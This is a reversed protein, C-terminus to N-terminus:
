SEESHKALLRKAKETLDGGARGPGARTLLGRNRAKNLLARVTSTSYNLEEAAREVPASSNLRVHKIYVDAVAAYEVDDRGRRGPRRSEAFGKTLRHTLPDRKAWRGIIEDLERQIKRLSLSRLADSTIEAPRDRSSGEIVLQKLRREQGEPEFWLTAELRPHGRLRVKVQLQALPDTVSTPGIATLHAQRVVSDRRHLGPLTIQEGSLPSNGRLQRNTRVRGNHGRTSSITL